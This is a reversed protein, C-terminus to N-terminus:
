LSGWQRSSWDAVSVLPSRCADACVTLYAQALPLPKLQLSSFRYYDKMPISAMVVFSEGLYVVCPLLRGLPKDALGKHM